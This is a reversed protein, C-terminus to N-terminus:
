GLFYLTMVNLLEHYIAGSSVNLLHENSSTTSFSTPSSLSQVTQLEVDFHALTNSFLLDFEAQIVSLPATKDALMMMVAGLQIYGTRLAAKLRSFSAASTAKGLNNSPQVPDLISITTPHYAVISSPFPMIKSLVAPSQVVARVADLFAVSVEKDKSSTNKDGKDKDHGKKAEGRCQAQMAQKIYHFLVKLRASETSSFVSEVDDPSDLDGSTKFRRLCGSLEPYMNALMNRALILFFLSEKNIYHQSMGDNKLLYDYLARPDSNDVESNPVIGFATITNNTFDFTSYFAFFKFLVQLPHVLEPSNTLIFITMVRLAYTNLMQSHSGLIHAEYLCWAQILIVSRKLLNNRGIADNLLQIYLSTVLGTPRAASIDIFIGNIVLRIIPIEANIMSLNTIKFAADEQLAAIKKLHVYFQALVDSSDNEGVIIALDVDGDPLFIRTVFSGYPIIQFGPFLSHLEDRIYKIIQHRCNISADSPALIHYLVNLRANIADLAQYTVTAPQTFCRDVLDMDATSSDDVQVTM